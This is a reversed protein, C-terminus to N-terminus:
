LSEPIVQCRLNCLIKWLLVKHSVAAEPALSAGPDLPNHIADQLAILRLEEKSQTPLETNKYLLDDLRDEAKSPSVM